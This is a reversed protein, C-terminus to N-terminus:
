VPYFSRYNKRQWEKHELHWRLATATADVYGKKTAHANIRDNILLPDQINVDGNVSAGNMNINSATSDPATAMDITYASIQGPTNYGIDVNDITGPIAGQSNIALKGNIVTLAAQSLYTVKFVGGTVALTEFSNTVVTGTDDTEDEPPTYQTFVSGNLLIRQVDITQASIKGTTDM